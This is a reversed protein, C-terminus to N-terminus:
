KCVEKIANKLCELNDKDYINKGFLEGKYSNLLFSSNLLNSKFKNKKRILFVLDFLSYNIMDDLSIRMSYKLENFYCKVLTFSPIKLYSSNMSATSNVSFTAFSKKVLENFEIDANIIHVNNLTLIKKYFNMKLNGINSPHEKVILHFDPPLIKWVNEINKLNDNYYMGKVDMSQEPIKQLFFIVFKKNKLFDPKKKNLFMFFFTRIKKLIFKKIRFFKSSSTPDYKDYYDSLLLNKFKKLYFSISMEKNLVRIYNSYAQQENYFKISSIKDKKKRKIYSSQHIDNFFVLRNLPLRISAPNLFTVKKKGIKKCIQFTLVEIAWTLEGIIFSIKKKKIFNEIKLKSEVLYKTNSKSSNNLSRDLNIIENIKIDDKKNVFDNSQDSIKPLYLINKKKFKSSLYKKQRKNVVIWFIKKNDIDELIKSYLYTKEFNAIICINKM